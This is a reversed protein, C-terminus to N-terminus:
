RDRRLAAADHQPGGTRRDPTHATHCLVKIQHEDVTIIEVPLGKDRDKSQIGIRRCGNLWSTIAVCIGEFETIEDRVRDGLQVENNKAM